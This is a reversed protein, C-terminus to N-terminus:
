IQYNKLKRFLTIKRAIVKAREELSTSDDAIKRLAKLKFVGLGQEVGQEYEYEAEMKAMERADQMIRDAEGPEFKLMKRRRCEDFIYEPVERWDKAESVQRVREPFIRLFDAKQREVIEARQAERRQEEVLKLYAGLARRRQEMYAALVEGLQNANFEGGWMEGKGRPLELEGAAKMRYAERIENVGLGPFKSLVLRTCEKYVEKDIEHRAGYSQAVLPLEMMLRGAAEETPM